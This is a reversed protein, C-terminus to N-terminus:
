SRREVVGALVGIRMVGGLSSLYLARMYGCDLKVHPALLLCKMGKAALGADPHPSLPNVNARDFVGKEQSVGTRYKSINRNDRIAAAAIQFTKSFLSRDLTTMSRALPARLQIM